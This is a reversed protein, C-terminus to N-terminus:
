VGICHRSATLWLVPACLSDRHASLEVSDLSSESSLLSDAAASAVGGGCDDAGAAVASAAGATSQQSTHITAGRSAGHVCLMQAM